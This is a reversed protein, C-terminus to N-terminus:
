SIEARSERSIPARPQQTDKGTGTERAMKRRPVAQLLARHVLDIEVLEPLIEGVRNRLVVDIEVPADASRLEPPVNRNVDRFNQWLKNLDIQDM